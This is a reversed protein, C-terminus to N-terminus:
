KLIYTLTGCDYIKSFGLREALQKETLNPENLLKLLEKKTYNMRHYMKESNKPVYYYSPRNTKILEFGNKEYVNGMSYSRDAYSVISGNFNRQMHKLLKSFGGIVKYNSKVAFRILEWQYSKTFRSTGFTMVSVLENEYFLGFKFKSKDKGQLHNHDLFFNKDHISIENITCKRGYIIKDHVGLQNDIYRKWVDKKEKWSSSFIHILKVNKEICRETKTLHYDSGKTKSFSTENPRYLHSYVGNYEFALQKEPLYIDLELGNCITRDNLIVEGNYVSYIYDVVEQEEKSSKKIKREYVNSDNVEINHNNLWISVTSKSTGIFEGIEKCTKLQDKHLNKMLDKNQLKLQIDSDSSNYKLIPINHHTIWKNIVTVSCGLEKAITEKSKKLTIRQEYIWDYSLLVENYHRDLSRYKKSCEDSCYKTYGKRKDSKNIHCKNGCRCIPIM